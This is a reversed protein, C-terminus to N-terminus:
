GRRSSHTKKSFRQGDRLFGHREYFRHADPRHDGSTVELKVCGVSEFWCEAARMLAGGVGCGRCREDVVLSSIRGLCGAAHFLPFAHLSICGVVEGHMLAVVVKDASSPLLIEIKELILEPSILYGLQQLLLAIAIHDSPRMERIIVESPKMVLSAGFCLIKVAALLLLM